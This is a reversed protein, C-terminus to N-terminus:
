IRRVVRFGTDESRCSPPNRERFSNRLSLPSSNWAGGRIVRYVSGAGCIPNSVSDPTYFNNLYTDQCWEAVNGSMGYLHNNNPPFYKVPTTSHFSTNQDCTDSYDQMESAGCDFSMAKPNARAQHNGFRYKTAPITSLDVAAAYEFEAETPLRYGNLKLDCSVKRGSNTETIHYVPAYGEMKSLWNCFQIADFWDVMIVPYDKRGWGLDECLPLREYKCYTDYQDFTIETDSILFSDLHVTHVPTEDRFISNDYDRFTDGMRFTGGKILVMNLSNFYIFRPTPQFSMIFYTGAAILIILLLAALTRNWRRLYRVTSLEDSGAPVQYQIAYAQYFASLNGEKLFESSVEEETKDLIYASLFGLLGDSPNKTAGGLFRGITKEHPLNTMKPYKEKLTFLIKRADRESGSKSLFHDILREYATNM